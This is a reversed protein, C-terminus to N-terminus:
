LLERVPRASEPLIRVPRDTADRILDELSIGLHQYVTALVDRYDVPRTEAYGGTKDTSGIVQGVRLGGGALLAFNVPAWHDRGADKNIKPTRGFEDWVVVAVDESLGRQHLDEILTAIGTDFTPLHQKLHRFNGGHTDWFGYAVTVVRVGAEVLRRAMLLQDNWLPAGDGLHKSSGGGYRARLGPDERDLDMAEVLRSSTLVDFARAYSEQMESVPQAEVVQRYEDFERLLQQRSQFRAHEVYRLKMSALNEGDARVQNFRPGLYGAGTSNYPKHQMTPFLDVFPPIVPNTPGQLQSVVSGFHPRQDRTAENMGYGTLNQYSTHEDRQGVVSRIVAVKDMVQAMRPLLECVEVGPVNSPIPQFEGRMEVPAQMKLDFTDQHSIGGSTYVMIVAKHSRRGQSEEARLLDGLTLGGIGLAGARLFSRRSVGDCFVSQQRM